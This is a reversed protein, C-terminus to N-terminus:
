EEARKIAKKLDEIHEKSTAIEMDKNIGNFSIGGGYVQYFGFKNEEFIEWDTSEIDRVMLRTEGVNDQISNNKIECYYGDVFLNNRVKKGAKMQKVAWMFTGVPAPISYGLKIGIPEDLELEIEYFYVFYSEPIIKNYIYAGDEWIKKIKINELDGNFLRANVSNPNVFKVKDGVKFKNKM